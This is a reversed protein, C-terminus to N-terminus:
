QTYDDGPAMQRTNEVGEAYIEISSGPSQDIQDLRIDAPVTEAMGFGPFRLAFKLTKMTAITDTSQGKIM